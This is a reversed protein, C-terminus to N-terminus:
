GGARQQMKAEVRAAMEAQRQLEVEYEWYALWGVFERANVRDKAEVVACGM